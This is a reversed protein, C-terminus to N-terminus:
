KRKRRKDKRNQSRVVIEKLGIILAIVILGIICTRANDPLSAFM